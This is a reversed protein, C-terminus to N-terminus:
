VGLLSLLADLDCPRIRQSRESLRIIPQQVQACRARLASPKLRILGMYADPQRSNEPAVGLRDVRLLRAKFNAYNGPAVYGAGELSWVDVWEVRRPGDGVVFPVDREELISAATDRDVDWHRAVQSIRATGATKYRQMM